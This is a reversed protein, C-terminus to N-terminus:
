GDEKGKKLAEKEEELDDAFKNFMLWMEQLTAYIPYSTSGVFRNEEDNAVYPARYEEARNHCMTALQHLDHTTIVTKM